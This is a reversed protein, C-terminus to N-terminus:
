IPLVTSPSVPLLLDSILCALRNGDRIIMQAKICYEASIYKIGSIEELNYKVFKFHVLCARDTLRRVGNVHM